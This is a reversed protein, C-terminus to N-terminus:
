VGNAAAFSKSHGSLTVKAFTFGRETVWSGAVGAGSVAGLNYDKHYPVFFDESPPSQLGQLGNWTMNQVALLTGNTPLIYDQMGNMIITNNTFEIVHQLVGDQAPGLSEDGEGTFVGSVCVDWNTPPANIAAQVDSRNFYIAAGPPQFGNAIVGLVSWLFPCQDTLHYINFCPNVLLAAREVNRFVRCNTSEDSPPDAFPGPPPFTLFEDLYATYGCTEAAQDMTAMFSANLNFENEWNHVLTAIPVLFYNAPLWLSSNVNEKVKKSCFVTESLQIM